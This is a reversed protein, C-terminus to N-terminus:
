LQNGTKLVFVIIISEGHEVSGDPSKLNNYFVFYEDHIIKGNTGILFAALDLDYEYSRRFFSNGKVPFEWNIGLLFKNMELVIGKDKVIRIAM